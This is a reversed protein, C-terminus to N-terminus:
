PELFTTLAGHIGKLIALNPCPPTLYAICTLCFLCSLAYLFCPPPQQSTSRGYKSAVSEAKTFSNIPFWIGARTLYLHPSSIMGQFILLVYSNVGLYFTVTSFDLLDQISKCQLRTNLNRAKMRLNGKGLYPLAWILLRPM